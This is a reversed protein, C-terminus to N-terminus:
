CLGLKRSGWGSWALPEGHGYNIAILMVERLVSEPDKGYDVKVKDGYPLLGIISYIGDIPLARGRDKVAWLAETLRLSAKDSLSYGGKKEDEYYIWGVPTAAKEGCLDKM